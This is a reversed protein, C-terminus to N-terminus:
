VFVEKCECDPLICFSCCHQNHFIKLHSCKPCREPSDKIWVVEDPSLGCYYWPVNMNEYEEM